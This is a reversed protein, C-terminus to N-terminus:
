TPYGRGDAFPISMATPGNRRAEAEAAILYVDALRIIPFNCNNAEAISNPDRYKRILM